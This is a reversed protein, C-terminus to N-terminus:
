FFENEATRYKDDTGKISKIIRRVRDDPSESSSNDQQCHEDDDVVKFAFIDSVSGGALDTATVKVNWIGSDDTEGSFTRTAADFKLWSPIKKGDALTASYTLSDGHIFDVDDFTGTPIAFSFKKDEHYSQDALPVAVTPADNVNVINLNFVSNVSLG